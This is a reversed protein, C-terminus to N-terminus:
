PLSPTHTLNQKTKLDLSLKFLPSSLCHSILNKVNTGSAGIVAFTVSERYTTGDPCSCPTDSNGSCAPSAESLTCRALFALVLSPIPLKM